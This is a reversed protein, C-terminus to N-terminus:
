ADEGALWATLRWGMEDDWVASELGSWSGEDNVLTVHGLGVVSPRMSESDYEDGVFDFETYTGNARPDSMELEYITDEDDWNQWTRLGDIYAATGSLEIDGGDATSEPQETVEVVVEETAEAEAAGEDTVTIPEPYDPPVGPVIVGEFTEVDTAFDFTQHIVATLGEYAGEGQLQIWEAGSFASGFADWTGVWAGDENDIRVAGSSVSPSFPLGTDDPAEWGRFDYVETWTGSIRPDSAEVPLVAELGLFEASDNLGPSYVWESESLPDGSTLTFFSPRHPDLTAEEDQALVAGSLGALLALIVTGVLPLRLTRM